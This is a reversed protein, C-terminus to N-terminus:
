RCSMFHQKGHDMDAVPLGSVIIEVVDLNAGSARQIRGNIAKGASSRSEGHFLQSSTFYVPPNENNASMPDFTIGLIARWQSVTSVVANVVNFNNDLTIKTLKGQGTGIYLKGDPGFCGATPSDDFTALQKSDWQIPVSVYTFTMANSTAGLSISEVAVQVPVAVTEVPAFVKITSQNVVQIASGKIKTLGFHVILDTASSFGSGNITVAYGGAINGSSPSLSGVYPYGFPNVTMTTAETSAFMGSDTVTLSVTHKGVPLKLNATQGTGLVTSGKKWTWETLVLGPGHTHSPGVFFPSHTSNTPCFFVTILSLESM